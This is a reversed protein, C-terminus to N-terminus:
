RGYYLIIQTYKKFDYRILYENRLRSEMRYLRNKYLKYLKLFDKVSIVHGCNDVNIYCLKPPIFVLEFRECKDLGNILNM